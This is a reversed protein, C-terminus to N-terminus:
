TLPLYINFTAGKDLESEAIIVGNHNDVIKKVIALGIGTGAYEAKGHLRQFAEFIKESYKQEFGIGNDSVSIHYCPEELPIKDTATEIYKIRSSKIKIGPSTKRSSFKLANGILNRMLQRFQYSIIKVEENVDVEISADMLEGSERFESIIEHILLNLDTSEFAKEVANLKSFELIDTILLSMRGATTTIHQLGEKVNDSLDASEKQLIRTTYMQIKRLPEQLDHSAMYAFSELEQNVNYLSSLQDNASNLETARKEKEQSQFDLEVNAIILEAARKEKEGNQFVLEINAIVLEAARKEKEGNQFVLEVNAIVLEAARKEKEKNQYKLEKNALLLQTERREREIRLAILELRANHLEAELKINDSNIKM